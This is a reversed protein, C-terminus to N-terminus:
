EMKGKKKKIIGRSLKGVIENVIKSTWEIIYEKQRDEPQHANLIKNYLCQKDMCDHDCRGCICDLEAEQESTLKLPIKANSM